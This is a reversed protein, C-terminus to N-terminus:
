QRVRTTLVAISHFVFVALVVVALNGTMWTSTRGAVDTNLRAAVAILFHLIHWTLDRRATLERTLVKAFLHEVTALVATLM